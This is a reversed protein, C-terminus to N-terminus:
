RVLQVDVGVVRRKWTSDATLVPLGLRKALTLCARDGLTLGHAADWLAAADDADEPTFPFIALGVIELDSRMSAIDVGDTRLAEMVESWNVASIASQTLQVGVVSGGPAQKMMGLLASTDLVFKPKRKPAM